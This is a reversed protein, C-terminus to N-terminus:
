CFSWLPFFDKIQWYWIREVLKQLFHISILKSFKYTSVPAWLTLNSPKRKPYNNLSGFSWKLNVLCLLLWSRQSEPNSWSTFHKPPVVKRDFLSKSTTFPFNLVIRVSYNILADGFSWYFVGGDKPVCWHVAPEGSLYFVVRPKSKVTDCRRGGLRSILTRGVRRGQHQNVVGWM